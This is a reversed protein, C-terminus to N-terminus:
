ASQQAAAQEAKAHEVENSFQARLQHSFRGKDRRGDRLDKIFNQFALEIADLLQFPNVTVIGADIAVPGDIEDSLRGLSAVYGSHALGHRFREEFIDAATKNQQGVQQGFDPVRKKLWTAIHKNGQDLEEARCLSEILAACLLACAFMAGEKGDAKSIFRAPEVFFGRVRRDFADILRDTDDFDIDAMKIGPAFFLTGHIIAM